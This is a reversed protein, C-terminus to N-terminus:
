GSMLITYCASAHEAATRGLDTLYGGDVQTVLGKDHLRRVADITEPAATHHIKIGELTTNLNFHLLIKIEEVMKQSMLM